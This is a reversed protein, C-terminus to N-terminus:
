EVERVVIYRDKKYFGESRDFDELVQMADFADDLCKYKEQTVKVRRDARLALRYEAMHKVEKDLRCDNEPGRMRHEM